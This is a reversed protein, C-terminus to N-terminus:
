FLYLNQNCQEHSFRDSAVSAVELQGAHQIIRGFLFYSLLYQSCALNNLLSYTPNSRLHSGIVRGRTSGKPPESPIKHFSCPISEPTVYRPISRWKMGSVQFTCHVTCDLKYKLVPVPISQILWSTCKDNPHSITRGCGRDLLHRLGILTSYSAHAILM